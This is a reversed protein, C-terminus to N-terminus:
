YRGVRKGTYGGRPDPQFTTSGDEQDWGLLDAEYKESMGKCREIVEQPMGTCLQHALGWELCLAWEIPFFMTDTLQSFNPIQLDCILHVAGLAAQPNPTQWLNCIIQDKQKDPYVAVVTGQQTTTSYTDWINRAIVDIPRRTAAPFPDTWYAEIVRRPKAIPSLAPVTSVGGIGLPYASVGAQLVPAQIALDEQVWLIAGQTQLWNVYKNLRRMGNSLQESNPERGLGLKGTDMLADCIVQYCTSPSPASNTM